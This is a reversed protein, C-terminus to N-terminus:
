IAQSWYQHTSYFVIINNYLANIVLISIYINSKSYM